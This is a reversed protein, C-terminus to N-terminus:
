TTPATTDITVVGTDHVYHVYYVTAAKNDEIEEPFLAAWETADTHTSPQAIAEGAKVEIDADGTFHGLAAEAKVVSAVDQAASEIVANRSSAVYRIYQPAVVASLIAIIAIVIILEVLTFGKNSKRFKKMLNKM